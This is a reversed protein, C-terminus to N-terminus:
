TLLAEAGDCLALAEAESEAEAIFRVIPETNSGRVLLWKDPWALRLGDGTQATADPHKAILADFLTPLRDPSVTAKSKHIHLKPLANALEALSKGTKTMLELIQAMGVFSDRVYGVRPDIPGGNGEGGYTAQKAIMMDAVNAEGVASRHSEVGAAAAIRESMGSTAGNIVIPGRTAAETMARQVCLALTYEEGIYRGDADVLALRDADPDQCFGVACAESRVREAISTLNDATPEPVHAFNGDPTDGVAVVECGLAKLMPVGLLSGAGHNSDLLVRHRSQQIAPVDVTALVKEMHPQHPEAESAVNGIKDFSCWDAEGALFADRIAAGTVADLVRGDAGFLKIGNYPPPNHSASIQVAGAAKSHTVLVGITPTAAVDADIADRGSAIIGAIIAQRLMPGSSRGDRGVIIPGAPMKKCYAAVFRCAIDPTLTEGVIGRLGSVSIILESM